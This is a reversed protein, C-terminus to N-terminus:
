STVPLLQNFNRKPQPPQTKYRLMSFATFHFLWTLGPNDSLHVGIITKSKKIAPILAQLNSESLNCAEVNLHQLCLNKRIFRSMHEQWKADKPCAKKRAELRNETMHLGALSLYRLQRNEALEQVFAQLHMRSINSNYSIDLKQLKCTGETVKKFDLKTLGCNSLTLSQLQTPQEFVRQFLSDSLSTAGSCDEVIIESLRTTLSLLAKQTLEGLADKKLSFSDLSKMHSIANLLKASNLDRM